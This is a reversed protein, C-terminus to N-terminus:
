NNETLKSSCFYFHRYEVLKFYQKNRSVQGESEFVALVERTRNKVTMKWSESLIM